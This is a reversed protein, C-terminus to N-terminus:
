DRLSIVAIAMRNPVAWVSLTIDIMEGSSKMAQCEVTQQFPERSSNMADSFHSRHENRMGDPIIHAIGYGIADVRLTGFMEEAGNSWMTVKGTADLGVVAAGSNEIVDVVIEADTKRQNLEDQIEIVKSYVDSPATSLRSAIVIGIASMFIMFAIGFSLLINTIQRSDAM